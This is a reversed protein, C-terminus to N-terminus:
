QGRPRPQPLLDHLHQRVSKRPCDKESMKGAMIALSGAFDITGNGHGDIDSLMKKLEENKVEFGVSRMAAQLVRMLWIVFLM